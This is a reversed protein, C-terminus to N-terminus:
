PHLAVITRIEEIVESTRGEALYIFGRIFRSLVQKPDKQLARSALAEAELPRGLELHARAAFALLLPDEGERLAGELDALAGEPDGTELRAVGRLAKLRHDGPSLRLAEELDLLAKSWERLRALALARGWHAELNGPNLKLARSFARLAKRSNGKRM